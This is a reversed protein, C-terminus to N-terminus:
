FTALETRLENIYDVLWQNKGIYSKGDYMYYDVFPLKCNMFTRRFQSSQIKNNVAAKIILMFEEKTCIPKGPCQSALKRPTGGVAYRLHDNGTLLYFWLGDICQFQGMEDITIPYKYGNSLFVGLNTNSCYTTNIHDVGDTLKNFM